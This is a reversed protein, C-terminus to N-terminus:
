RRREEMASGLEREMDLLTVNVKDLEAMLLPAIMRAVQSHLAIAFISLVSLFGTPSSLLKLATYSYLLWWCSWCRFCVADLIHELCCLSVVGYLSFLCQVFHTFVTCFESEISLVRQYVSASCVCLFHGANHECWCRLLARLYSATIVTTLYDFPRFISASVFLRGAVRKIHVLSTLHTLWDQM